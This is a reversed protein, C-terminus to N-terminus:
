DIPAYCCCRVENSKQKLALQSVARPNNVVRRAIINYRMQYSGVLCCCLLIKMVYSMLEQNIIYQLSTHILKIVLIFYRRRWTKIRGGSKTMFGEALSAPNQKILPKIGGDTAGTQRLAAMWEEREDWTRAEMIYERKSSGSQLSFMYGDRTPVISREWSHLSAGRVIFKGRQEFLQKVEMKDSTYYVLSGDDGLVFYRELWSKFGGGEKFLFGAKVTNVKAKAKKEVKVMEIDILLCLMLNVNIHAIITITAYRM